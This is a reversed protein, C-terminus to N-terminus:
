HRGRADDSTRMGRISLVREVPDHALNLLGAFAHIFAPTDPVIEGDEEFVKPSETRVVLGLDKLTDLPDVGNKPLRLDRDGPQDDAAVPKGHHALVADIFELVSDNRFGKLDVLVCANLLKAGAADRTRFLWRTQRLHGIPPAKPGIRAQFGHNAKGFDHLFALVALRDLTVDEILVQGAAHALRARTVPRDVLRRFVCAVDACHHALPLQCDGDLKAWAM